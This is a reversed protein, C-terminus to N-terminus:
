IRKIKKVQFDCKLNQEFYYASIAAIIAVKIEESVEGIDEQPKQEVVVPKKTQKEGKKEIKNVVVMALSLCLIIITMGFFIVLMGLVLTYLGHVPPSMALIQNLM